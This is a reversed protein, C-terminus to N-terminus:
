KPGFLDILDEEPYVFDDQSFLEIPSFPIEPQHLTDFYTTCEDEWAQKKKLEEYESPTMTAIPSNPIVIPEEEKQIIVTKEKQKRFEKLFLNKKSSKKSKKSRKKKRSESDFFKLQEESFTTTCEKLTSTSESSGYAFSTTPASMVRTKKSREDFYEKRRLLIKLLVEDNEYCNACLSHNRFYYPIMRVNTNINPTFVMGDEGRYINVNKHCYTCTFAREPFVPLMSSGSMRTFPSYYKSGINYLFFFHGTSTTALNM